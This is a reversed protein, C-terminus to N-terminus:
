QRQGTSIGVCVAQIVQFPLTSDHVVLSNFTKYIHVHNCKIDVAAKCELGPNDKHKTAQSTAPITEEPHLAKYIHFGLAKVPYHHEEDEEVGQGYCCLVM